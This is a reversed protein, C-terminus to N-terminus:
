EFCPNWCDPGGGKVYLEVSWDNAMLEDKGMTVKTGYEGLVQVTYGKADAVEIAFTYRCGLARGDPQYGDLAPPPIPMPNELRGTGVTNHGEDYAKVETGLWLEKPCGTASHWEYGPWALMGGDYQDVTGSIVQDGSGSGGGGGISQVVFILLAMGGAIGALRSPREKAVRHHAERPPLEPSTPPVPHAREDSTAPDAPQDTLMERCWRCKVAEDQIMEACFPCQKM